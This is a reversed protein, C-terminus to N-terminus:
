KGVRHRAAAGPGRPSPHPPPRLPGSSSHLRFQLGARGLAGGGLDSTARAAPPSPTRRSKPGLEGGPPPPPRPPPPASGAPGSLGARPGARPGPGRRRPARARSGGAANASGKPRVGLGPRLGERGRHAEGPGRSSVCLPTQKARSRHGQNCLEGSPMLGRRTESDRLSFTRTRRPCCSAAGAKRLTM